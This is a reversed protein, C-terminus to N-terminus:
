VSRLEVDDDGVLRGGRLAVDVIELDARVDDQAVVRRGARLEEVVIHREVRRDEFPPQAHQRHPPATAVCARRPPTSM